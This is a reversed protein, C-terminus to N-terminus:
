GLRDNEKEFEFFEDVTDFGRTYPQAYPRHRELFLRFAANAQRLRQAPSLSASWRLLDEDIPTFESM